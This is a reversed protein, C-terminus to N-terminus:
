PRTAGSRCIYKDKYLIVPLPFRARCRAFRAKSCLDKLKNAEPPLQTAAPVAMFSEDILLTPPLHDESSSSSSSAQKESELVILTSPYASSLEGKDNRMVQFFDIFAMFPVSMLRKVDYRVSFNYDVAFLALTRDMAEKM